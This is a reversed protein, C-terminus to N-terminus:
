ETTGKIGVAHRLQALFQDADDSRVVYHSIAIRIVTAAKVAANPGPLLKQLGERMEPIVGSMMPIVHEPEIDVMRVGSYSYQYDVIFRLAADLREVGKLGATAKALGKEFNEREYRSFASMLEEKSAFWRYLTPRSVGAQTSVESLSLKTKGSRALVEATAALIRQRTSTDNDVNESVPSPQSM